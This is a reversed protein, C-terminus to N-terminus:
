PVVIKLGCGSSTPDDAAAANLLQGNYDGVATGQVQGPPFPGLCSWSTVGNDKFEVSFRVSDGSHFNPLIEAVSSQNTVFEDVETGWWGESQGARTVAGTMHISDAVASGPMTWIITLTDDEPVYTIEPTTTASEPVTYGGMDVLGGCTQIDERTLCSLNATCSGKVPVVADFEAQSVEVVLRDEWGALLFVEWVQIPMAVGDSMAYVASSEFASVLSGDRYSATGAMPYNPVRGGTSPDHVLDNYTAAEIGWTKLVGQWGTAPALQRYRKPDNDTGILLWVGANAPAGLVASVDTGEILGPNNSYCDLEDNDILAVDAFDYNRSLFADETIFPTLGGDEVVYVTSSEPTKVLSGNPHWLPTRLQSTYLDGAVLDCNMDPTLLQVHSGQEEMNFQLGAFSVGKIGDLSADGTHRGIHLHDGSSNGTTGEFGLLQGAAAESANDVFVSKLHALIVYTGDGLDINIHNGFNKTPDETHVYAVGSVPAYLPVDADNPTDLDVDYKTSTAGHSVSGFAGQTCRATFGDAFPLEATVVDQGGGTFESQWCTDSECCGSLWMFVVWMMWYWAHM